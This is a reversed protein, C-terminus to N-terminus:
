WTSIYSDTITKQKKFFLFKKKKMPRDCIDLKEPIQHFAKRVGTQPYYLEYDYVRTNESSNYQIKTIRLNAVGSKLDNLEIASLAGVITDHLVNENKRDKHNVGFVFQFRADPYEDTTNPIEFIPLAHNDFITDFRTSSSILTHGIAFGNKSSSITELELKQNNESLKGTILIHNKKRKFDFYIISDQVIQYYGPLSQKYQKKIKCGLGPKIEDFFLHIKDLRNKFRQDDQSLYFCRHDDLFFIYNSLMANNKKLRQQHDPKANKLYKNTITCRIEYNDTFRKKKDTLQVDMYALKWEFYAFESQTIKPLPSKNGIKGTIFFTSKKDETYKAPRSPFFGKSMPITCGVGFILFGFFLLVKNM